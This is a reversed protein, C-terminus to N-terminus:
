YGSKELIEQYNNMQMLEPLTVNKNKNMFSKVIRLGIWEGLRGPSDQSVPATFPAEQM